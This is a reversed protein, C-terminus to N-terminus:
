RSSGRLRALTAMTRTEIKITIIDNHEFMEVYNLLNILECRSIYSYDLWYDEDKMCVISVNAKHKIPNNDLLENIIDWDKTEFYIVINYMKIFMIIYM